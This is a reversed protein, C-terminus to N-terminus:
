VVRRGSLTLQSLPGEKADSFPLMQRIKSLAGKVAEVPKNVASRIGETFTEMIKAGSQKFLNVAGDVVGRVKAM